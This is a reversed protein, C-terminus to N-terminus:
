YIWPVFGPTKSLYESYFPYKQKLLIEELRAKRVLVLCLAFLMLVSELSPSALICALGFLMVATYMPHRIYQYIGDVILRGNQKPSPHINFNGFQNAQLAALAVIVSIAMPILTGLNGSAIAKLPSTMLILGFLLSFQLVVLWYGYRHSRNVSCRM